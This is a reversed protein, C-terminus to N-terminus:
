ANRTRTRRWMTLHSAFGLLSAFIKPGPMRKRARSRKRWQDLEAKFAYVSGLKKHVLRHVPLQEFKEWRQVTRVDRRLYAAIEKWSELRDANEVLHLAESAPLESTRDKTAPNFLLGTRGIQD